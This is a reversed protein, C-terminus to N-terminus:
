FFFLYCHRCCCNWIFLSHIVLHNFSFDGFNNITQFTIMLILADIWVFTNHRIFVLVVVIKLWVINIRWDFGFEVIFSFVFCIKQTFHFACAMSHLLYILMHFLISLILLRCIKVRRNFHNPFQDDDYECCMGFVHINSMILLMM